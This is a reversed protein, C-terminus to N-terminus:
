SKGLILNVLATVDAITVSGDGNVDSAANETGKGLIINVLATVDAITVNGDGNVDGKTSAPSTNTYIDQGNNYYVVLGEFRPSPDTGLTQFWVLNGESSSGNLAYCISGSAFEATTASTTQGEVDETNENYNAAGIGNQFVGYNSMGSLMNSRASYARYYCNSIATSSTASGSISGVYKYGTVSGINYCNSITSAYGSIGGMYAQDHDNSNITGTNYCNTVTGSVYGAIGGCYKSSTGTSPSYQVIEGSNHCRAITTNKLAYGCIGGAGTYRGMSYDQRITGTNICDEITSASSGFCYGCIGGAYSGLGNAEIIAGNNSCGRITGNDMNGCIGGGYNNTMVIKGDTHCNEIVVNTAYGCLFSIYLGKLYCDTIITNKITAGSVFGFLGVYQSSTKYLGNVTYDQGDFTGQYRTSSNGIPTWVRFNNNSGNAAVVGTNITINNTLVANVNTNGANVYEAFWYLHGPYAIQYKGDVLTAPEGKGCNLCFRDSDYDHGTATVVDDATTIQTCYEDLYYNECRSCYWYELNGGTCTAPVADFHELEHGLAAITVGELTSPQTCSSVLFYNGCRTCHWHEMHGTTTCTPAVAGFHETEHGLAALTVGELTTPQTCSSDLFYNECRTCYWYEHNGAATCTAAVAETHELAHGQAPLSTAELTTTQTCAADLYYNGCRSCHWYEVNGGTTCTEAVADTHTLQHGLAPITTATVAYSCHSCHEAKTSGATTCTAAVATADTVITHNERQAAYHCVSCQKDHRVDDVKTYIWNHAESATYNCYGCTHKHTSSGNQYWGGWSHNNYKKYSCKTCVTYCQTANYYNYTGSFTHNAYVRDGCTSCQHYCQTSSYNVWNGYSCSGTSRTYGCVTCYYKHTGSGVSTPAYSLSCTHTSTVNLYTYYSASGGENLNANELQSYAYNLHNFKRVYTPYSSKTRATTSSTGAIGTIPKWQSASVHTTNGYKTYYLYLDYANSGRGRNLNGGKSDSTYRVAQFTVGDQTITMGQDGAYSSGSVILLGTIADALNTSTKFGIYVYHGGGGQNMDQDIVTYGANTLQSKATAQNSNTSVMLDSIFVTANATAGILLIIAFFLFTRKKM